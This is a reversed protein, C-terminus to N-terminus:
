RLNRLDFNTTVTKGEPTTVELAIEDSAVSKAEYELWVTQGDLTAASAKTASSYVPKNRISRADLVKGHQKVAFKFSQWFNEPRLVSSEGQSAPPSQPGRESQPYSAPLMLRIRVIVTDGRERYAQVAEQETFHSSNQRSQDLVQAFPTLIDISAIHPSEQTGGTIEKSYPALFEATAQDNRQGLTWADHLAAPTLSIEYALLLPSSFLLAVALWFGHARFSADTHYANQRAM